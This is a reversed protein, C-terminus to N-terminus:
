QVEEYHHHACLASSQLYGDALIPRLAAVLAAAQETPLGDVFKRLSRKRAALHGDVLQLGRPSLSVLKVRRDDSSERREVLGHEVLRDINRGAAHVSLDLQDAVSRIPMPESWSLLMLMRIQTISMEVDVLFNLSETDVLGM